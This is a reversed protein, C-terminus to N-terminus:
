HLAGSYFLDAAPFRSTLAGYQAGVDIVPQVVGLNVHELFTARRMARVISIDIKTAASVLEATKDHNRNAWVAAQRMAESFRRALDPNAGLWAENVTWADIMWLEAIGDYSKGFVRTDAKAQTLQPEAVVAADVRNATLAAPMAAFPLEIFKVQKSDGGNKDIWAQASVHAIGELVNVAVTKGNLDRPVQLPSALPVLMETTPNKTTYTSGSAAIKLPLGKQHASALSLVNIGGVDLSGSVVAAAIANGNTFSQIDVAIGAKALFGESQAAFIESSSDIPVNGVRLTTLDAARAREASVALAAGLGGLM